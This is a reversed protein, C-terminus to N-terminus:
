ADTTVIFSASDTGTGTDRIGDTATGRVTVVVRYTTGPQINFGGFTHHSPQPFGGHLPGFCVNDGVYSGVLSGGPHTYVKFSGTGCVDNTTYNFHFNTQETSNVTPGSVIQIPRSVPGTTIEPQTTPPLTTTTARTTTTTPETTTTTAITTTPAETTGPAETTTSPETTDTSPETTTTSNGGADTTATTSETRNGTSGDDGSSGSEGGSGDDANTTSTLRSQEGSGDEDRGDNGVGAASDDRDADESTGAEIEVDGGDAVEDGGGRVAFYVVGAVAAISAVALGIEALRRPRLNGAGAGSSGTTTPPMPPAAQSLAQSRSQSQSEAQAPAPVANAAFANAASPVGAVVPDGSIRPDGSVAPGGLVADSVGPGSVGPGPADPGAVGPGSVDPGSIGPGSIGPGSIGPGSVSPNSTGPLSFDAITESSASVSPADAGMIVTESSNDPDGLSTAAAAAAAIGAGAAAIPAVPSGPNSNAAPGTAADGNSVSAPGTPAAWTQGPDDQAAGEPATREIAIPSVTDDIEPLIARLRGEVESATPRAAPEKALMHDILAALSEPIGGVFPPADMAHSKLVAFTGGEHFPATGILLEFMLAGLSYIDAPADAGRKDAAEPAMYLPTGITTSTRTMAESVLRSIGFDSIKPQLSGDIREGLLINAPKLDRHVVDVAHIAQLGAAVDAAIAMAQSPTLSRDEVRKKLDGGNVREMVIGLQDGEAVLDHVRVVNPHDIRSFIQREQVFRAVTKDDTSLEPRLIKVALPSNDVTTAAHVVGMAGRGLPEGLFYKSGLQRVPEGLGPDVAVVTEDMISTDLM